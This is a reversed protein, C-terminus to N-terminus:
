QQHQCRTAAEETDDASTASCWGVGAHPRGPGELGLGLLCPHLTPVTQPGPEPGKPMAVWAQAAAGLTGM